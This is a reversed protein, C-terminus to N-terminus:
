NTELGFFTSLYGKIKRYSIRNSLNLKKIYTAVSFTQECLYTSGFMSCIRLLENYIIPYKMHSCNKWFEIEKLSSNILSLDTQLKCLEMQLHVPQDNIVCTLPSYFLTAYPKIINFDEFRDNFQSILDDLFDGFHTFSVSPIEIKLKKCCHFHDLNNEMISNKIFKLKLIFGDIHSIMGFIHQNKHQLQLNLENIFQTVDTLIALNILFSEDKLHHQFIDSDNVYIELFTIIEPRLEFFRLLSKGRSLWRVDTHLVLDPYEAGFENLFTKFRRHNLANHGGRIKNIIKIVIDMTEKINVAKACLAQQHIICHFSPVIINNQRLYGIFGNKKGTMAPAGDTCVASLKSLDIGEFVRQFASFIDSGKTTGYMTVCRYVEEIINFNSDVYKVVILLQSLDTVDTSEDLAISFYKCLQLKSKLKNHLHSDIHDIRRMVTDNSLPIEKVDEALAIGREGLCNLMKVLTNKLYVGDTMPKQYKAIEFSAVYSAKLKLKACIPSSNEVLNSSLNEKLQSVLNTRASMDISDYINKHM